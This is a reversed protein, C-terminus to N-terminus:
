GAIEALVLPLSAFAMVSEMGPAPLAHTTPEPGIGPESRQAEAAREPTPTTHILLEAAHTLKDLQELDQPPTSELMAGLTDAYAESSVPDRNEAPDVAHALEHCWVHANQVNLEVLDVPRTDDGISVTIGRQTRGGIVPALREGTTIILPTRRREAHLAALGLLPLAPLRPDVRVWGTFAPFRWRPEPELSLVRHATRAADYLWAGAQHGASTEACRERGAQVALVALLVHLPSLLGHRRKYFEPYGPLEPVHDFLQRVVSGWNVRDLATM